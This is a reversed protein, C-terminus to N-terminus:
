WVFWLCVKDGLGEEEEEENVVGLRRVGVLFLLEGRILGRVSEESCKAAGDVSVFRVWEGMEVMLGREEVARPRELLELLLQCVGDFAEAAGCRSKREGRSAEEEEEGEEEEGM